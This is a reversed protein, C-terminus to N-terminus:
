ITVLIKFTRKLWFVVQGRQNSVAAQYVDISKASNM